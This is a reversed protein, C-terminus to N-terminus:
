RHLDITVRVSEPPGRRRDEGPDPEPGISGGAGAHTKPETLPASTHELREVAGFSSPLDNAARSESAVSPKEGARSSTRFPVHVGDSTDPEVRQTITVGDREFKIRYEILM